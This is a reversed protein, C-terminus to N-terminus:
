PSCLQETCQELADVRDTLAQVAAQLSTIAQQQAAVQQQLAVLLPLDSFTLPTEQDKCTEGPALIRLNGSGPKVCAVVPPPPAAIAPLPGTAFVFALLGATVVIRRVNRM